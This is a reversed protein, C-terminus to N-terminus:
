RGSPDNWKITPFADVERLDDWSIRGLFSRFATEVADEKRHPLSAAFTERKGYRGFGYDKGTIFFSYVKRTGVNGLELMTDPDLLADVHRILQDRDRFWKTSATLKPETWKAEGVAVFSETEIYIDPHTPGELVFWGSRKGAHLLREAEEIAARDGRRLDARKGAPEASESVPRGRGEPEPKFNEVCWELRCSPAPLVKEGSSEVGSKKSGYRVVVRENPSISPVRFSNRLVAKRSFLRFFKNLQEPSNGIENFVPEVRYKTSNFQGM